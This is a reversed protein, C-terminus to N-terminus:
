SKNIKVISAMILVMGAIQVVTLKEGLVFYGFIVSFVPIFNLFASSVTPGLRKSAYIYFFYSAASCLVGLYILNVLSVPSPVKWSDVEHIVFPIFLFISAVTQYATIVISPYKESLSKNFITYVVWAIMAAIVLLNGVLTSSSLDLTGNVTIVLYVGLISLIICLVMKLNIKQKFLLAESILTFIPVSAVIMSANSATTYKIGTNEFIFYLVIGFFGSAAIFGLDKLRVPVFSRTFLLWLLLIVAAIIQRFFAISAPSLETLVIKTSIFSYAWFIVPLMILAVSLYYDKKGDRFIKM